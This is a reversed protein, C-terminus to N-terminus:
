DGKLMAICNDIHRILRAIRRRTAILSDPSDALKHSVTLFEVDTRAKNLDKRTENLEARINENEMELEQIRRQLSENISKLRNVKEDINPLISDLSFAM